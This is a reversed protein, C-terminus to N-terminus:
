YSGVCIDKLEVVGEPASEQKYIILRYTKNCDIMTSFHIQKSDTSARIVENEGDFLAICFDTQRTAVTFHFDCFSQDPDFDLRYCVGQHDNQSAFMIELHDFNHFTLDDQSLVGILSWDEDLEHEAAKTIPGIDKAKGKGPSPPPSDFDLKREITNIPTGAHSSKKRPTKKHSRKKKPTSDKQAQGFHLDKEMRARALKFREAQSLQPSPSHQVSPKYPSRKHRKQSSHKRHSSKKPSYHKKLPSGGVPARLHLGRQMAVQAAKFREERTMNLSPSTHPSPKFPSSRRSRPKHTHHRREINLPQKLVPGRFFLGAQMAAQAAKFREERSLNSAPSHHIVFNSTPRKTEPIIPEARRIIPSGKPVARLHLNREIFERNKEFSTKKKRKSSSSKRKRAPSSNKEEKVPTVVPATVTSTSSTAGAPQQVPSDWPSSEPSDFTAFVRMETSPSGAISRRRSGLLKRFDFFGLANEEEEVVEIVKPQKQLTHRKTEPFPTQPSNKPSRRKKVKEKAPSLPSIPSLAWDGDDDDADFTTTTTVQRRPTMRELAQEFIEEDTTKKAKAKRHRSKKTKGFHAVEFSHESLSKGTFEALDLNNESSIVLILSRGENSVLFKETPQDHRIMTTTVDQKPANSCKFPITKGEYTQFTLNLDSRHGKLTFVFYIEDQTQPLDFHYTHDQTKKFQHIIDQDEDLDCSFEYATLSFSTFLILSFFFTFFRRM